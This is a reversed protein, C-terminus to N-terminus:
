IVGSIHLRRPMPSRSFSNRARIASLKKYDAKLFYDRTFMVNNCRLAVRLTPRGIPEKRRGLLFKQISPASYRLHCFVYM